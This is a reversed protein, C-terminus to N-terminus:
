LNGGNQLEILYTWYRKPMYQQRIRENRREAIAITKYYQKWLAAFRSEDASVDVTGLTKPIEVLTLKSGDYYVGTHRRVDHIVWRENAMRAAFHPAMVPVVNCVPNIRSYLVGDSLERFRILGLLKHRENGTRRAWQRIKWIPEESLHHYFQAKYRFAMRLYLLLPMERKKVDSLFGYYLFHCAKAGCQIQLAHLIRAAKREDACVVQESFLSLGTEAHIDEVQGLGDHWADFIASLFGFFTGDYVYIM